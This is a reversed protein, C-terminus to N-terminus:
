EFLGEPTAGGACGPSWGGVSLQSMRVGPTDNLPDLLDGCSVGCVWDVAFSGACLLSIGVGPASTLSESSASCIGDASFSDSPWLWSVCRVPTSTLEEEESLFHSAWGDGLGLRFWLTRKLSKPGSSESSVLLVAVVSLM